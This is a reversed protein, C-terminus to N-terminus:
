RNTEPRLPLGETREEKAQGNKETSFLFRVGTTNFKAPRWVHGCKQCEHTHHPKLVWEGEDVHLENCKECCIRIPLGGTPQGSELLESLNPDM